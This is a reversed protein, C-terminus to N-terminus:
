QAGRKRDAPRAFEFLARWDANTMSGAAIKEALRDKKDAPVLGAAVLDEVILASLVQDATEPPSSEPKV